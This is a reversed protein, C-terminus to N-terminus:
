RSVSRAGLEIEVDRLHGPRNIRWAVVAIWCTPVVTCVFLVLTALAQRMPRNVPVM